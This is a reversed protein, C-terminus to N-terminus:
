AAQLQGVQQADKTGTQFRDTLSTLSGVEESLARATATCEEVMAANHQTIEELTRFAAGIEGLAAVQAGYEDAISAVLGHVDGVVSEIGGLAGDVEAIAEVAHAVQEQTSTLQERARKAEEESRMALQGVLDAVVAFGRGADGARGAEVAANMALVRTQFAIKDLGEIVADIGVASQAVGEMRKVALDAVGRGRQVSDIAANARGVTQNLTQNGHNLREDVQALAVSAEEIRNSTRETREALEDAAQTIHSSSQHLQVAGGAVAVVLGRLASIAQNFHRQIAAYADPFQRDITRHLEGRSLGALGDALATTALELEQMRANREAAVEAELAAQAANKEAVAHLLAVVRSCIFVLAGAEALLIVAHLLIRPLSGAGIFVWEPLMMGVLLHHVAVIATAGVIARWDCLVATIALAAFFAMHLDVQWAMGRFAYLMVAPIAVIAMSAALRATDGADGKRWLWAPYALLAVLSLAVSVFGDAGTALMGALTAASLGAGCGLVLTLGTKRIGDLTLEHM